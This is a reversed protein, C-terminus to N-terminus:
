FIETQIGQRTRFLSIGALPVTSSIGTEPQQKDQYSERPTAFGPPFSECSNRRQSGLRGPIIRQVLSSRIELEGSIWWISRPPTATSSLETGGQGWPWAAAHSSLSGNHRPLDQLVPGNKEQTLFKHAKPRVAARYLTYETVRSSISGLVTGLLGFIDDLVPSICNYLSGPYWITSIEHVLLRSATTM